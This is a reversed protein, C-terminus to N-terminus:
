VSEFEYEWVSLPNKSPTNKLIAMILTAIFLCKLFTDPPIPLLEFVTIIYENRWVPVLDKLSRIKEKNEESEYSWKLDKATNNYIILLIIIIVKRTANKVIKVLYKLSINEVDYKLIETSGDFVEEKNFYIDSIIIVKNYM